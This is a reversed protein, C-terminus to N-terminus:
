IKSAAATAEAAAQGYSQVVHFDSNGSEIRLNCDIKGRKVHRGIRERIVADLSRFDEPARVSIEAYRHNVSRLEWAGRGWQGSFEVRSFATMSHAM